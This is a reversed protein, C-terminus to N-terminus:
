ILGKPKDHDRVAVARLEEAVRVAKVLHEPSATKGARIAQDELFSAADDFGARIAAALAPNLAGVKRLVNALIAQLALTEASLSNIEKEPDIM